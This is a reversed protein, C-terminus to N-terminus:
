FITLTQNNLGFRWKNTDFIRKMENLYLTHYKDIDSQTPNNIKPIIISKGFICHLGLNNFPLYILFPFYWMPGIPFVTPIKFKNLFYKLKNNIMNTYNIYTDCEGFIYCPKIEYIGYQLCYKIFGKRQRIYICHKNKIFMTAEEFGGPCIGFSEKNLMYKKMSIADVSGVCGTLKTVFANFLPFKSLYGVVLGKRPFRNFVNNYLSWKGCYKLKIQNTANNCAQVRVGGCFFYGLCFIGHPHCAVIIPTDDKNTIIDNNIYSSKDNPDFEMCMSTGGKFYYGAYYVYLQCILSSQKFPLLYPIIIILSLILCTHYYQNLFFILTFNPLFFGLLWSYVFMFISFGGLFIKYWQRNYKGLICVSYLGSFDPNILSPKSVDIRKTKGNNTGDCSDLRPNITNVSPTKSEIESESSVYPSRSKISAKM